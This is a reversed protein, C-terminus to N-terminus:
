AKPIPRGVTLLKIVRDVAALRAYHDPGLDIVAGDKGARVVRADLAERIVKLMRRFLGEIEEVHRNTLAVVIQQVAESRAQKAITQRSVGEERGIRALSSKTQWFKERNENGQNSAALLRM